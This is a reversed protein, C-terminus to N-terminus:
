PILRNNHHTGSVAEIKALRQDAQKRTRITDDLAMHQMARAYGEFERSLRGQTPAVDEVILHKIPSIRSNTLHLAPHLALSM